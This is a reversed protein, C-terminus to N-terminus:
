IAERPVRITCEAGDAHIVHEVKAGPLGRLILKSGFGRRASPTCHVGRERWRFSLEGNVEDWNIIVQGACDSRWAGYKIANTALEHLVLAFANTSASPLAVPAGTLLLRTPDPRLPEIVKSILVGLDADEFSVSLFDQATALAQIRGMINQKLDEQSVDAKMSQTCVSGALGLLNKLRHRLEENVWQQQEDHQRLRRQVRVAYLAPILVAAGAFVFALALLLSALSLPAYADDFLIGTAAFAILLTFSLWPGCVFGAILLAPFFTLYRVSGPLVSHLADRGFVAVAYLLIAICLSTPLGQLRHELWRRWRQGLPVLARSWFSHGQESSPTLEGAGVIPEPGSAHFLM